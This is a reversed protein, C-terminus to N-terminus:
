PSLRTLNWAGDSTRTFQFRDHLRSARGQWFEIRSPTLRYGGWSPPLPIPHGAHTQAVQKEAEQLEKRSAIVRSQDSAWAGIQSGRPRSHFYAESEERSVRSVTGAICVQRELEPWYFTLAANPNKELEHGKRSEYNTFFTFGHESIGKLLVTRSSPRGDGDVTAIVMANPDAPPTGLLEQFAKYLAIAFRRFRGGAPQSADDYWAQFQSFPDSAM